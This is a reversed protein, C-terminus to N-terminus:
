ICIYKQMKKEVVEKKPPSKSEAPAAGEKKPPNNKFQASRYSQHKAKDFAQDCALIVAEDTRSLDELWKCSLRIAGEKREVQLVAYLLQNEKLLHSKEDYLDSWVPLEYREVGDSIM